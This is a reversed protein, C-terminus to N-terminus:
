QKSQVCNTYDDTRQKSNKNQQKKSSQVAVQTHDSLGLRPPNKPNRKSTDFPPFPPLPYNCGSFQIQYTLVCVYTTESFDAIKPM